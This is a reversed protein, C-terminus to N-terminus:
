QLLTKKKIKLSKFLKILKESYDNLEAYTYFNKKDFKIAVNNQCNKLKDLFSIGLNVFKKKGYHIFINKTM